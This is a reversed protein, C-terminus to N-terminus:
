CTPKYAMGAPLRSGWEQETMGGGARRCVAHVADDTVLDIDLLRGDAGLTRLTRSDASFFVAVVDSAHDSIPVGIPAHTEADWLRVTDDAGATALMTGDPSFVAAIAPESHGSMPPNLPKGTASDWMWVRADISPGIPGGCACDNEGRVVLKRGDPSFALAESSHELAFGGEPKNTASAPDWVMTQSPHSLALHRGERDWALTTIVRDVPVVLQTMRNVDWLRVHFDRDSIALVDHHPQFALALVEDQDKARESVTIRTREVTRAVDILSVVHNSRVVALTKGDESFSMAPVMVAVPQLTDWTTDWPGKVDEGVQEGTRSDWFRVADEAVTAVTHGDPSFLAGLVPGGAVGAKTHLVTPRTLSRVDVMRLTGGRGGVMLATEDRSFGVTTVQFGPYSFRHLERLTETDWLQVAWGNATAMVRGDRTFAGANVSDEHTGTAAKVRRAKRMGTTDLLMADGIALVWRGDPSVHLDNPGYESGSAGDPRLALRTIRTATTGIRYLDVHHDTTTVAALGGSPDTEVRFAGAPLGAIPTLGPLRVLRENEGAASAVLGSAAVLRIRGSPVALSRGERTVDWLASSRGTENSDGFNTGLLGGDHNLMIESVNRAAGRLVTKLRRTGIDWVQIDNGVVVAETSGDGSYAAYDTMAPTFVSLEPQLLSGLLSSRTEDTQAIAHAALSLRMATIPDSQRLQAAKATLNNAEAIDRQANASRRLYETMGVLGVSVVLLVTLALIAANRLRGRTRAARRQMSDHQISADLFACALPGLSARHAAREAWDRTLALRNGRYLGSSDREDLDWRHAAELLQQEVLLGARDTDIWSRLTPWARLLAEHTIEVLGDDVTILRAHDSAFCELLEGVEDAAQPLEALLHERPVRRRTDETGEGGIHVLRLFLPRALARLSEDMGDLVRDATHALAGHIGGTSTYSAVTLVQSERRQWTMRLAHSLLPLRGAEYAAGSERAGLDKLLLDTLGPEVDLGLTAAPREIAAGLESATMPGVVVPRALARALEPHDACRGLFDARMGLVVLAAPESAHLARIFCLRRERDACETFIEEFQDVVLVLRGPLTEDPFAANAIEQWVEAAETLGGALRATLEDAPIDCVLALRSALAALPDTSPTLVLRPWGASGAIGLEGRAIAPLLGARLLSTKGSGSAGTVLLAAPDDYHEALRRVLDATAKERGFFWATQKELYPSLGPYPCLDQAPAGVQGSPRAEPAGRSLHAVNPALVLDGALGTVKRRPRPCGAAPLVRSLYRFVHNLTLFEPGVLDGHVLLRILAGFFATHEANRPALALEDRGASTLVFAGAIETLEAIGEPDSLSGVARGSFCCDLIVIKVRAPSDLVFQRLYEYPWATYEHRRHRGSERTALHLVGRDTLLGHGAFCVLLVDSAREALSQLADGFEGNNEPDVVIRIRDRAANCREVLTDALDALTGPIAPVDPLRSGPLHTGTGVLLIDAEALGVLAPRPDSTLQTM